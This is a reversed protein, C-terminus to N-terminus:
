PSLMCDIKAPDYFYKYAKSYGNNWGCEEADSEDVRFNGIGTAMASAPNTQGQGYM